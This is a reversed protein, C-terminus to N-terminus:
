ESKCKLLQHELDYIQDKLVKNMLISKENEFSVEQLKNKMMILLNDVKSSPDLKINKLEEERVHYKAENKKLVQITSKLERIKKEYFRKLEYNEYEKSNNNENKQIQFKLSKKVKILSERKDNINKKLNIVEENKYKCEDLIQNYNDNLSILYFQQKNFEEQLTNFDNLKLELAQRQQLTYEYLTTIKKLEELTSKLEISIENFKTVKMNKKLNELEAAKAELEKLCDKYQRKLNITFNTEVAKFKSSEPSM